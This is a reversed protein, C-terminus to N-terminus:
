YREIARTARADGMVDEVGAGFDQPDGARPNKDLARGVVQFRYPAVPANFIQAAQPGRHPPEGCTRIPGPPNPARHIFTRTRFMAGDVQPTVPQGSANDLFQSARTRHETGERPGTLSGEDLIPVGAAVAAVEREPPEIFPQQDFSGHMLEIGQGAVDGGQGRGEAAREAVHSGVAGDDAKWAAGIHPENRRASLCGVNRQRRRSEVVNAFGEACRGFRGTRHSAGGSDAVAHIRVMLRLLVPGVQDFRITGDGSETRFANVRRHARLGPQGISGEDEPPAGASRAPRRAYIHEVFEPVTGKDGIAPFWNAIQVVTAKLASALPSPTPRFTQSKGSSRVKLVIPNRYPQSFARKSLAGAPGSAIVPRKRASRAAHRATRRTGAYRAYRDACPTATSRSTGAPIKSFSGSVSLRLWRPGYGRASRQRSPRM